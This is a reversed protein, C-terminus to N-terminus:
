GGGAGRATAWRRMSLGFFGDGLDGQVGSEAVRGSEGLGEPVPEPHAGARPPRAAVPRVALASLRIAFGSL